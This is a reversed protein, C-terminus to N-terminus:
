SSCWCFCRSLSPITLAFGTFLASKLQTRISRYDERAETGIASTM